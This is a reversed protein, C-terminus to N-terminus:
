CSFLFSNAVVVICEQFRGAKAHLGDCCNTVFCLSARGQRWHYYLLVSLQYRWRWCMLAALLLVAVVTGVSVLVKLTLQSACDVGWSETDTIAAEGGGELLCKLGVADAIATNTSPRHSSQYSLYGREKDSTTSSDVAPTKVAVARVWIGFWLLECFCELPNGSLLLKDLTLRQLAPPLSVLSNNRANLTTLSTAAEFFSAPIDRLKNSQVDLVQLRDLYERDKDLVELAHGSLNLAILSAEPV